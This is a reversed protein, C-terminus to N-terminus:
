SATVPAFRAAPRYLERDLACRDCWAGGPTTVRGCACASAGLGRVFRTVAHVVSADALVRRHGLGQTTVLSAGPWTRTLSAAAKWPVERDDADHVVLLPVDRLPAIDVEEAAVGLRDRITAYFAARVPEPAAVMDLFGRLYRSPATAPGVFVLQRPAPVGRRLALVTAAAGLSHAVVAHPAGHLAVAEEFASAIHAISSREGGTAGHGPADFAVVRHGADLLPRVYPSLQGAHGNWGHVLYVPPGSGWWWGAVGDELTFRHGDPAAPRGRRTTMFAALALRAAREVPLLRIALRLLAIRVNTGNKM